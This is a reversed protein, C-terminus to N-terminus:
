APVREVVDYGAMALKAWLVPQVRKSERALPGEIWARSVITATRRPRVLVLDEDRQRRILGPCVALAFQACPPCLWPESVVTCTGLEEVEVSSCSLSGLALLAAPGAPQACVQCLRRAACRRQRKPEQKTFNPEGQGQRGAPAQVAIAQVVPDYRMVWETEPMEGSWINIYPVPRGHEDRLPWDELHDPLKM